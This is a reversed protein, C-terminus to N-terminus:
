LLLFGNLLSSIPTSLINTELLSDYPLFPESLYEMPYFSLSTM